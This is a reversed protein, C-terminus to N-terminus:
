KRSPAAMQGGLGRTSVRASPGPNASRATQRGLGMADPREYPALEKEIAAIVAFYVALTPKRAMRSVEIGMCAACINFPSSALRHRVASPLADYSHMWKHGEDATLCRVQKGELTRHRMTPSWTKSLGKNRQRSM